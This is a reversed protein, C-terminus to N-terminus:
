LLPFGMTSNPRNNFRRIEVNPNRVSTLDCRSVSDAGQYCIPVFKNTCITEGGCSMFGSLVVCYITSVCPQGFSHRQLTYCIMEKNRFEWLINRQRSLITYKIRHFLKSGSDREKFNLTVSSRYWLFVNETTRASYWNDSSFPKM